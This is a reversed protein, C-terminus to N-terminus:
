GIDIRYFGRERKGRAPCVFHRRGPVADQVWDRCQVQARSEAAAEDGRVRIRWVVSGSCGPRDATARVERRDPRFHLFLHVNRRTGRLIWRWPLTALLLSWCFWLLDSFFFWSLGWYVLKYLTWTALKENSCNLSIWSSNSFFISTSRDLYLQMTIFLKYFFSHTSLCKFFAQHKSTYKCLIM